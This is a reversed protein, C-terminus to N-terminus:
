ITAHPNSFKTVLDGQSKMSKQFPLADRSQSVLMLWHHGELLKGVLKHALNLLCNHSIVQSANGNPLGLSPNKISM